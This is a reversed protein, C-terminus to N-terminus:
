LPLSVSAQGPSAEAAKELARAQYSDAFHDLLLRHAFSYGGGVRRMLIRTTADDLFAQIHWPFTHAQSLLLRISYHRVTALGGYMSWALLGGCLGAFWGFNLGYNLGHSFMGIITAIGLIVSMTIFYKFKGIFDINTGQPILEFFKEM